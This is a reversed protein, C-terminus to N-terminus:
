QGTGSALAAREEDVLERAGRAAPDWAVVVARGAAAVTGDEMLLEQEITISKGGVEAVRSVIVVHDETPPVERRYNLEDRVLVFEMADKGLLGEMTAVRGQAMFTHFNAHNLHGYRDFDSWRLQIPLRLQWEDGGTM